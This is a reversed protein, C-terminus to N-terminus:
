YRAMFDRLKEDRVEFIAFVGLARLAPVAEAIERELAERDSDSIAPDNWRLANRLFAAVTGKRLRLGDIETHDVADPLVDEPRIPM